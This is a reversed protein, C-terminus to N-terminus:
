TQPPDIDCNLRTGNRVATTNPHDPGLTAKSRELVVQALAHAGSRDGMARM